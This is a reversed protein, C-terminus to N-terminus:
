SELSHDVVVDETAKYVKLLSCTGSANSQTVSDWSSPKEVMVIKVPELRLNVTIKGVYGCLSRGKSKGNM